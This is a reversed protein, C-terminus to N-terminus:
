PKYENYFSGEERNGTPLTTNKQMWEVWSLVDSQKWDLAGQATYSTEASLVPSGGDFARAEPPMILTLLGGIPLKSLWLGKHLAFTVRRSNVRTPDSSELFCRANIAYRQSPLVWIRDVKCGSVSSEQQDIQNIVAIVQAEFSPAVPQALLRSFISVLLVALFACLAASLAFVQISSASRNKNPM